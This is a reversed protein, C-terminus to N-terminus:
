LSMQIWSTATQLFATGPTLVLIPQDESATGRAALFRKSIEEAVMEEGTKNREKKEEGEYYYEIFSKFRSFLHNPNCEGETYVCVEGTYRQMVLDQIAHMIDFQARNM